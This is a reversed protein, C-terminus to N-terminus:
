MNDTTAKQPCSAQCIQKVNSIRSAWRLTGLKALPLLMCNAVRLKAQGQMEENNSSLSFIYSAPRESGANDSNVLNSPLGWSCQLIASIRSIRCTTGQVAVQAHGGNADEWGCAHTCARDCQSKPRHSACAEQTGQEQLKLCSNYSSTASQEPTLVHDASVPVGDMASFITM